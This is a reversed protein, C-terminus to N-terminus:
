EPMLPYREAINRLEYESFNMPDNVYIAAMRVLEDIRGTYLWRDLQSYRKKFREILIKDLREGDGYRRENTLAYPFLLDFSIRENQYITLGYGGLCYKQGGYEYSVMLLFTISDGNVIVQDVRPLEQIREAIQQAEAESMTLQSVEAQHLCCKAIAEKANQPFKMEASTDQLKHFHEKFEKRIEDDSDANEARTRRVRLWSILLLPWAPLMLTYIWIRHWGYCGKPLDAIYYDIAGAWSLLCFYLSFFTVVGITFIASNLSFPFLSLFVWSLAVLFLAVAVVPLIIEYRLNIDEEAYKWRLRKQAM